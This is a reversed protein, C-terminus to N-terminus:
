IRILQKSQLNKMRNHWHSGFLQRLHLLLYHRHTQILQLCKVLLQHYFIILLLTHNLILILIHMLGLRMGWVDCYRLRLPIVINRMLCIMHLVFRHKHSLIWFRHLRDLINKPIKIQILRICLVTRVM